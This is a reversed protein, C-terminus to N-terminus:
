QLSVDLSKVVSTVIKNHTKDVEKDKLTKSPSRYTLRYTLNKADGDEPRYEDILKVEELLKQNQELIFDTVGGVQMDLPAVLTVDRRVPPFKPLDQFTVSCHEEIARLRPLSLDAYWVDARTKLSEALDARLMGALGVESGDISVKVCPSLWSHTDVRDFMAEGLHLSRFLHLLIGKLDSFDCDEEPWPYGSGFRNGHLLISLKEEERTKTESNEDAHFTKAVEFLHLDSNGHSLNFKLSQVLGAGVDTRLVNQEESLPNAIHVRGERSVGLFDLDKDGVFSYNVCESLGVGRGWLKIRTAFDFETSGSKHGMEKPVVPLTEPVKDMGYVRVVEEVLDIERELDLRHSPPYVLWDSSDEEEIRCGLATLTKACFTSQFDIGVVRTARAPRFHLQPQAWPKPEAKVVGPVLKAGSTKCIFQAARNMAFTNGQQDVGREFRHSADSPLALRRATKRVSAPRFVASELVIRTSGGHIESNAGGMVGALAVPKEADWILLDSELLEREQEDLTTFKTGKDALGVRITDDALLDRDFAHLPQGLEMMVYNTVDVVNSIPRLGVALLRYRMWAPSPGIKIDDILRAQYLPCLNPDDIKISFQSDAQEIGQEQVLTVEPLSLPLDFAMAVERAVGLISLCDARNPTLDIDLVVRELGLADVMNTGPALSEDLVMIGDHAESLELEKESCIMGFSGVGRIKAKKIKFDGPLIAGIKAVAVKQGKAVNPAGCVIDLVEDGVDVKTVSLKDAEPHPDCELVHGVVLQEMHEFPHYIEDVELGLMTLKEALADVSGEYPVFDRLWNISVLM